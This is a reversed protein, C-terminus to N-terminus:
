RDEPPQPRRKTRYRMKGSALQGTTTVIWKGDATYQEDWNAVLTLRGKIYRYTESGHMGAGGRSASTVTHNPNIAVQTLDSLQQNLEFRGSGPNFLYFNYTFDPGAGGDGFPVAIDPHGDFNADVVQILDAPKRGSGAAGEIRIEQVVAGSARNAIRIAQPEFHENGEDLALVQFAHAPTAANQKFWAPAAAPEQGLANAGLGLLAACLLSHMPNM